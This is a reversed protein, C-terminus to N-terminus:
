EEPQSYEIFIYKKEIRPLGDSYNKWLSITGTESDQYNASEITAQFRRFGNEDPNTVAIAQFTGLSRGEENSIRAWFAEAIFWDAQAEGKITLPFSIEDGELPETIHIEDDPNFEATSNVEAVEDALEKDSDSFFVVGFIIVTIVTLWVFFSKKM